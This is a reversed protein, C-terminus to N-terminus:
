CPQRPPPHSIAGGRSDVDIRFLGAFLARDLRQHNASNLDDGNGFYLFGDPGFQIHGANHMSREEAEESMRNQSVLVFTSLFIAELSVIMTLLGFPFPDFNGFPLVHVNLIIWLFFIVILVVVGIIVLPIWGM